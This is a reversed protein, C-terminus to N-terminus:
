VLLANWRSEKPIIRISRSKILKQMQVQGELNLGQYGSRINRVITGTVEPKTYRTQWCVNRIIVLAGADFPPEKM